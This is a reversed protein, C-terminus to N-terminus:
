NNRKEQEVGQGWAQFILFSPKQSLGGFLNPNSPKSRNVEGGKM